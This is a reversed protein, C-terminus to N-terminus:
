CNTGSSDDAVALLNFEKRSTVGAITETEKRTPAKGVPNHPISLLVMKAGPGVAM